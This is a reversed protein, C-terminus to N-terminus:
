GSDLDAKMLQHWLGHYDILEGVKAWGLREFFRVNQPQVYALFTKCNREKVSKVALKVLNPAVRGNRYGPLSGLRGGIWIDGEKRYCRVVGVVKQAARDLAIIHVAVPDYSDVDTDAFIKQESVFIQSRLHFYQKLEDETDAIKFM